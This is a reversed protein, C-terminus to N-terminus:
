LRNDTVPKYALGRLNKLLYTDKLWGHQLFRDAILVAQDIAESERIAAITSELHRQGDGNNKQIFGTDLEGPHEQLYLLTPLTLIGRRLNRGAPIGPEVSDGWFDLVDNTIQFAMGLNYGLQYAAEIETQDATGLTAAMGSALEFISATKAHIWSYYSELNRKDGNNFMYTIEGNTIFQLTESFKQMVAIRNTAAALQAAAAFAFDGALVTASTLFRANKKKYLSQQGSEDVLYDHVQTAIHMM